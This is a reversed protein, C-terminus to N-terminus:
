YYPVGEEIEDGQQDVPTLLASHVVTEYGDGKVEDHRYAANKFINGFRM